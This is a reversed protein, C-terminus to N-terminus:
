TQWPTQMSQGALILGEDWDFLCSVFVAYDAERYHEALASAGMHELMRARMANTGQDQHVYPLPSGSLSCAKRMLAASLAVQAQIHGLNLCGDGGRFEIRGQHSYNLSQGHYLGGGGVKIADLIGPGSDKPIPRCYGSNRHVQRLRSAQVRRISDFFMQHLVFVNSLLINKPNDSKRYGMHVHLGTNDRTSAGNRVLIDLVTAVTEWTEPTDYLIPSVIEGSCTADTEVSWSSYGRARNRHYSGTGSFSSLGKQNFEEAIDQLRSRNNLNFEIEIGFGRGQGQECWGGTVNSAVEEDLHTQMDDPTLDRVVLRELLRTNRRWDQHYLDNFTVPKAQTTSIGWGRISCEAVLRDHPRFGPQHIVTSGVLNLTNGSDLSIPTTVELLQCMLEYNDSAVPEDFSLHFSVPNAARLAQGVAVLFNPNPRNPNNVDVVHSCSGDFDICDCTQSIHAFVWRGTSEMHAEIVASATVIGDTAPHKRVYARSYGQRVVTIDLIDEENDTFADVVATHVNNTLTVSTRSREDLGPLTRLRKTPAEDDSTTLFPAFQADMDELYKFLRM